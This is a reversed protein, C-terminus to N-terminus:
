TTELSQRQVAFKEIAAVPDFNEDARFQRVIEEFEESPIPYVVDAAANRALLESLSGTIEPQAAEEKVTISVRVHRNQFFARISDILRQDLDEVKIKDFTLEAM